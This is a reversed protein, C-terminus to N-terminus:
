ISFDDFSNTLPLKFTPLSFNYQKKRRFEAGNRKNSVKIM